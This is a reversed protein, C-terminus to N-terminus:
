IKSSRKNKNSKNMQLIFNVVLDPIQLLSFGLFIGTFGGISSWFMEFGFDRRNITEEYTKDMYWIEAGNGKGKSSMGDVTITTVVSMKNCPPLYSDLVKEYHTILNFIERLETSTNCQRLASSEYQFQKWYPPICGIRDVIQHRFEKDDDDLKPNCPDNADPRKRLISVRVLNLLLFRDVPYLPWVDKKLYYSYVPVNRFARILHGDQHIYFLLKTKMNLRKALIKAGATALYDSQRIIGEEFVSRRTFCMKIPDQYSKYILPFEMLSGYFEMSRTSHEISNNLFYSEMYSFIYGLEHSVSNVETELINPTRIDSKNNFIEKEGMLAKQYAERTLGTLETFNRKDYIGGTKDEFCYTFSPYLDLPSQNFEKTHFSSTDKNDLYRRIQM